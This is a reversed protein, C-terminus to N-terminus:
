CTMDFLLCSADRVFTALLGLGVFSTGIIPAIWFVHKEATWGYVFLGIPILVAGPIMPPLRYEPKMEGKASKKKVIWDSAIGFIVLGFLMGIGLGLYTLGVTSTSFHYTGEFVGTVTTFILYLYGYVVAMFISMALVIPSFILLKLPRIIALKLLEKPPLGSDLKSRLNENGTEKRLRKAKWELIVPPYTERLFFFGLITVAGAQDSLLQM